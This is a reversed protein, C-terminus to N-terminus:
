KKLAKFMRKGDIYRVINCTMILPGLVGHRRFIAMDTSVAAIPNVGHIDTLCM